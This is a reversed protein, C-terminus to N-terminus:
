DYRHADSAYRLWLAFDYGIIIVIIVLMVGLQLPGIGACFDYAFKIGPAM